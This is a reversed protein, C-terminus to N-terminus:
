RSLLPALRSIRDVALKGLNERVWVPAEAGLHALDVIEISDEASVQKLFGGSFILRNPERAFLPNPAPITEPEAAPKLDPELLNALDTYKWAEVRRNPIGTVTFATMAARRKENLWDLSAGPLEAAHGAFDSEFGAPSGYTKRALATM